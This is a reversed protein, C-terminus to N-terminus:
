QSNLVINTKREIVKWNVNKMGDDLLCNSKRPFDPRIESIQRLMLAQKTDSSLAEWWLPSMFINEVYEFGFRVIAQCIAKDSLEDLTKMLKEGPPNSGIWSFIVAGGTNTVVISSTILLPTEDLNTLKQLIEGQFDFDPLVCGSCVFDPVDSINVVYYQLDSFDETVLALDYRQKYNELHKLSSAEGREWISVLNQWWLQKSFSAGKDFERALKLHDVRARKMFLERCLARYSLLFIQDLSGVIPRNEVPEFTKTDHYNCFGTFTSAERIGILRPSVMGTKMLEADGPDLTYVHGNVAIAKLSGSRQLSHAKVIDRKCEAGAKPHLCYKKGYANRLGTLKEQFTPIPM